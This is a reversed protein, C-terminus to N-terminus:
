SILKSCELLFADLFLGSPSAPRGPRTGSFNTGPLELDSPMSSMPPPRPVGVWALYYIIIIYPYGLRGIHIIEHLM